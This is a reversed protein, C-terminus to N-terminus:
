GHSRRPPPAEQQTTSLPSYAEPRHGRRWAYITFCVAAIFLPITLAQGKSMWGLYLEYGPDPERFFEGIFRGISYTGITAGITLGPRRHFHHVTLAVVLMLLGELGAAYLQSPHRPLGSPDAPFIIAWSVDSPRGWLEGNIFNAIRGFLVGLGTTAGVCDGLVLFPIRRRRAFWWTGLFLGAVGGHSAMGGEWLRFFVLPDRFFALPPGHLGDDLYFLCYGLRGGLIMCIGITLVADAIAQHDLPLRGQSSWRRLLWWAIGFGALYALGYWRIGVSGWFRIAFPDINHVWHGDDM